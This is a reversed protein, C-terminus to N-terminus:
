KNITMALTIKPRKGALSDPQEIEWVLQPSSKRLMNLVQYLNEDEFTANFFYKNLREDKVEIDVNYHRSLKEVVEEMPAKVFVLKGNIWDTYENAKKVSKEFSGTNKHYTLEIGPKLVIPESLRSSTFDVAGKALFVMVKEDAMYASVNFATGYAKVRSGDPVQVFFPKQKNSEVEFYGEGCLEVLRENNVFKNPYRLTSGSHLHVKSGDPLIVSSVRGNLCSVENYAIVREANLKMYLLTTCIILPLFLIAAIKMVAHKVAVFRSCLTLRKRIKAEAEALHAPTGLNIADTADYIFQLDNYLKRKEESTRLEEKLMDKEEVTLERQFFKLILDKEISNDKESM